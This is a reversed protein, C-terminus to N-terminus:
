ADSKEVIGGLRQLDQVFGPYSKTYAQANLIRIPAGGSSASVAAAMAIRHDGASDIEGGSFRRASGLGRVTLSEAGAEHPVGLVRLLASTSALRDSEKLRLRGCRVFRTTGDAAAAAVALIPVLDPIQSADIDVGTLGAPGPEARVGEKATTIRAGMASLIAAAARDGQRSQPELGKVLIGGKEGGATGVAGACLWFAANSWDGEIRVREPPNWSSQGRVRWRPLGEATTEEKMDVGAAELVALTMRVYPESEFSKTVTLTSAASSASSGAPPEILALAMLFGGVFQSSVNGPIEYDGAALRGRLRIAPTGEGSLEIGRSRLVTSLPAMPREPLRGHLQLRAGCGLAALIPTLYRLTTGSEGVDLVPEAPLASRRIPTAAYGDTSRSIGAGLARLCRCTAEIDDSAANLEIISPRRGLAAAILARHAHSKSAIADISGSLAAPCVTLHM